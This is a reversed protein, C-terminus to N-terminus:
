ESIYKKLEARKIRELEDYDWERQEYNIFKNKPPIPPASPLSPVILRLSSGNQEKILWANIFKPMGTKTKRRSPNGELWGKMNRLQQIIDVNPYLKGWNDADEQYVPYATNDALILEIIPQRRSSPKAESFNTKNILSLIEIEAAAPSSPEAESCLNEAADAAQNEPASALGNENVSVYAYANVNDNVNVNVNDNDNVNPEPKTVTQNERQNESPEVETVTQNERQNGSPKVKTETQNQNPKVETETQNDSPEAEPATQNDNPEAETESQNTNPKRGGNKGNLYRQNNKDIQPKSLVFITQALVDGEEPEKGDLGYYLLAMVSQKFEKEPLNKVADFFSRYFVMSSRTITEETM